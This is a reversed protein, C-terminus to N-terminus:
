CSPKQLEEYYHENVSSGHLMCKPKPVAACTTQLRMCSCLQLSPKSQSMVRLCLGSLSCTMATCSSSLLSNLYLVDHTISSLRCDPMRSLAPRPMHGAKCGCEPVNSCLKMTPQGADQTQVDQLGSGYDALCRPMDCFFMFLKTAQM